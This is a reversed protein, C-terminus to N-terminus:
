FTVWDDPSACSFVCVDISLVGDTIVVEHLWPHLSLLHIHPRATHHKNTNRELQAGRKRRIRRRHRVVRQRLPHRHSSSDAWAPLSVRRETQKPSRKRRKTASTSTSTFRATKLCRCTSLLLPPLLKRRRRLVTFPLSCVSVSSLTIHSSRTSSHHDLHAPQTQHKHSKQQDQVAVKFDFAQTRDNFGIGLVASKKGDSIRLVFYRSSDVAAHFVVGLGGLVLLRWTLSHTISHASTTCRVAIVSAARLRSSAAWGADNRAGLTCQTSVKSSQRTTRYRVLLLCARQVFCRTVCVREATTLLM